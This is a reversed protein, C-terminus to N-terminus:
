MEAAFMAWVKEGSANASPLRLVSGGWSSKKEDLGHFSVSSPAKKLDLLGCGPADTGAGTGAASVWGADCVCAGATCLGNLSCDTVTECKVSSKVACPALAALPLLMAGLM